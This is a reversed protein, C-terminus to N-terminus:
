LGLNKRMQTSLVHKNAGGIRKVAEIRDLGGESISNARLVLTRLINNFDHYSMKYRTIVYIRLLKVGVGRRGKPVVIWLGSKLDRESYHTQSVFGYVTRDGLNMDDLSYPM